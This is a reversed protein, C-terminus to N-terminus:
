INWWFTKRNRLNGLEPCWYSKPSYVHKPVCGADKAADHMANNIFDVYNDIKIQKDSINYM